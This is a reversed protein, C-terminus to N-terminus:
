HNFRFEASALLAWTMGQIAETRGETGAASLFREVERREPETPLRSLVGLYLDEVLRGADGLKALRATLGGGSGLWANIKSGNKLFLAQQVTAQFEQPPQGPLGAFLRVFSGIEKQLKKYLASEVAESDVSVVLVAETEEAAAEKGEAAKKAAEAHLKDEISRRERDVVGAAQLVALGLQEPRLPKLGAIAFRQTLLRNSAVRARPTMEVEADVGFSEAEISRCYEVLAEADRVASRAELVFQTLAERDRSAADAISRRTEVLQLAEGLASELPELKRRDGALTTELQAAESRAKEVGDRLGKVSEEIQVSKQDLRAVTEALEKDDPLKESAARVRELSERLLPLASEKSALENQSADLTVSVAQLAKEREEFPKQVAAHKARADQLAGEAQALEEDTRSTAKAVAPIQERLSDAKESWHKFQNEAETLEVTLAPPESSRQYTRTLALERVFARIDYNMAAFSDGLIALLRPHSPPNSDHHLDLPEVLGRGMMLAWLRNAINRDFSSNGGGTADEALLRRRSFKAVHRVGKKPAVEYEQGKEFRPESLARGLPLRPRATFKKADKDFVSHFSAEGDAKEALAAGTKKDTFVSTRVFFAFLGHYEDQRYGPILPHDHCQACQLDRGFFLRGVDRTIRQFDGERELYFKAAARKSADAGDASLIERVLIHYPKNQRFSTYLYSSWAPAKVHKGGRREMLMEDFFIQLRRSHEPSALLRDILRERKGPEEDSLFERVESATPITGALDLYVRRLFEADGAPSAFPGPHVREIERDIRERLPPSANKSEEPVSAPVRGLGALTLVFFSVICTRFRTRIGELFM